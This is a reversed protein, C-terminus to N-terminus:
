SRTASRRGGHRSRRRARGPTRTIEFLALLPDRVEKNMISGVANQATDLLQKPVLSKRGAAVHYTVGAPPRQRANLTKLFESGPRLDVAAEGLGDQLTAWRPVNKSFTELYLEM